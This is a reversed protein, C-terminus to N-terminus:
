ESECCAAEIPKAWVHKEVLYYLDEPLNCGRIDSM